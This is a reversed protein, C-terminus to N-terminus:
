RLTQTPPTPTLDAVSATPHTLSRLTTQELLGWLHQRVTHMPSRIPCSPEVECDGGSALENSACSTLSPAGELASIVEGLTVDEAARTLCYGGSAGRQSEVLGARGLDKLVEAVLRRPIPHRDCVERVSVFEGHRDVLHVLAILGYETRKTFQLM